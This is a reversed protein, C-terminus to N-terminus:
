ECAESNSSSNESSALAIAALLQKEEKLYKKQKELKRSIEAVVEEAQVM